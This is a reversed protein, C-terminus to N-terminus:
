ETTGSEKLGWPSSSLLSRQGHSQGPLLVPTPQWKRGWPSRGSGPILGPDGENCASAKGDSGGPFNKWMVCCVAKIFFCCGAVEGAEGVQEQGRCCKSISNNASKLTYRRIMEGLVARSILSKSIFSQTPQFPSRCSLATKGPGGLFDLTTMQPWGCPMTKMVLSVRKLHFVPHAIPHFLSSSCM